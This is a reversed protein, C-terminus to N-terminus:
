VHKNNNNFMNTITKLRATHSTFSSLNVPTSQTLFFLIYSSGYGTLTNGTSSFGKCSSLVGLIDEPKQSDELFFDIETPTARITM